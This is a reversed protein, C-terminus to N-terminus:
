LTNVSLLELEFVLTRDALPGKEKYGLEPPVFLQWKDGEKMMQLAQTWGLIVANVTFSAPKNERLSSDFEQGDILKGVYHVTVNDNKAPSKGNGSKIVKYQLGSSLSVIGINKENDKLFAAREHRYKESKLQKQNQSDAIIKKKLNVLTLRMNEADMLTSKGKLADQIGKLLADANPEVGQRKLDGGVQFGISYSVKDNGDLLPLEDGAIASGFYLSCLIGVGLQQV